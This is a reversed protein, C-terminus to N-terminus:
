AHVCLGFVGFCSFWFASTKVLSFLLVHMIFSKVAVCFIHAFSHQVSSAFEWCCTKNQWNLTKGWKSFQEQSVARNKKKLIYIVNIKGAANASTVTLWQSFYILVFFFTSLSGATASGAHVLSTKGSQETVNWFFCINKIKNLMKLWKMQCKGQTGTM